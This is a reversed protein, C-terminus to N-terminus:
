AGAPPIGPGTPRGVPAGGAGPPAGMAPMPVGNSIPAPGGAGAPGAGPPPSGPPGQQPTAYFQMWHQLLSAWMAKTQPDTAQEIQQIMWIPTIIGNRMQEDAYLADRLREEDIEDQLRDFDYEQIREAFRRRSMVGAQMLATGAQALVLLEQTRIRTLSIQVRCGIQDILEPTMEHALDKNTRPKHTAVMFPRENGNRYATLHGMNRYQYTKTEMKRTQYTEMARIWPSIHDMGAEAANSMSNGTINSGPQTGFMGLPISGTQRDQQVANILSGVDQSRVDNTMPQLQEGPLLENVAGPRRDIKPLSTKAALNDRTMVYAPDMQSKFAQTIRAMFAEFQDHRERQLHISSVAKHELGWDDGPGSRWWGSEGHVNGVLDARGTDTFLPEGAPGYQVVFPNRYLRHETPPLLEPGNLISVSRYTCDAYECITVSRGPDTGSEDEYQRRDKPKPEGFDSCARAYTTRFIRYAECLGNADFIPYFSIPDILTDTFPYEDDKLNPLHRSVIMGYTTLVKWEAMELPIDGRESWRYVEEERLFYAWDELTQGYIRDGPLLIKKRAAFELSAGIANLLNWDDILATSKFEDQLGDERDERDSDFIGVIEGRLRMVTDMMRANRRANRGEERKAATWIDGVEPKKHKKYNAPAKYAPADRKPLLQEILAGMDPAAPRPLLAADDPMQFPMVM